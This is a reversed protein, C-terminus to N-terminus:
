PSSTSGAPRTTGTPSIAPPTTRFVVGKTAQLTTLEPHTAPDLAELHSQGDSGTYLRTISM